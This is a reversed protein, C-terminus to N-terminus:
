CDKASAPDTTNVDYELAKPYKHSTRIVIAAEKKDLKVETCSALFFVGIGFALINKM